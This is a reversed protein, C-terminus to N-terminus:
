PTEELERELRVSVKRLSAADETDEVDIRHTGATTPLWAEGIRLGLPVGSDGSGTYIEARLPVKPDSVMSPDIANLAEFRLRLDRRRESPEVTMRGLEVLVGGGGERPSGPAPAVLALGPFQLGPDSLLAVDAGGNGARIVRGIFRAGNRLAAGPFVGDMRGLNLKQGARWASAEGPAVLKADAWDRVDFLDGLDPVFAPMHQPPCLVTVHYLGSEYDLSPAITLTTTGRKTQSILEGLAYGDALRALSMEGALADPELVRVLGHALTREEPNHVALRLRRAQEEADGKTRPALGGAVLSSNGDALNLAVAGVRFESGTVLDVSAVRPDEPDRAAVRGVYNDGSVVPSGISWGGSTAFLCVIRDLSEEDRALVEGEILGRGVSLAESQPRAQNHYAERVRRSKHVEDSGEEEDAALVRRGRIWSLPFTLSRVVVLPARLRDFAEEVAQVPRVSMVGLALLLIFLITRTRTM